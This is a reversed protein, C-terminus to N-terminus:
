CTVLLGAAGAARRRIPRPPCFVGRARASTCAAARVCSVGSDKYFASATCPFFYIIVCVCVFVWKVGVDSCMVGVCVTSFLTPPPPPPPHRNEAGAQTSEFASELMSRESLPRGAVQVTASIPPPPSLSYPSPSPFCRHHFFSM